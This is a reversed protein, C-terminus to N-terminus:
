PLRWKRSEQHRPRPPLFALCRRTIEKDRRYAPQAFVECLIDNVWKDRFVSNSLRLAITYGPSLELVQKAAAQAENQLGSQGATVAINAWAGVWRPMERAGRRAFDLAKELEGKM